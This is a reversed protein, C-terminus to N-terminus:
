IRVKAVQLTPTQALVRPEELTFGQGVGLVQTVPQLAHVGPAGIQGNRMRQRQLNIISLSKWVYIQFDNEEEGKKKSKFYM